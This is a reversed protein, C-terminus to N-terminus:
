HFGVSGCGVSVADRDYEQDDEADVGNTKVGVLRGPPHNKARLM